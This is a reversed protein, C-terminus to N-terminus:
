HIFPSWLFRFVTVSGVIMLAVVVIVAAFLAFLFIWDGL